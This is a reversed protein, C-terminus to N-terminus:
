PMDKTVHSKVSTKLKGLLDYLRAKDERTVGSLLDDIWRAHTTSMAGFVRRGDQTLTVRHSRRDTPSPTRRILGEEALREVLSTINGNSVMLRASLEGMTMGEPARELQALMDFRPLTTAFYERLMAHMRREIMTSCTLLRLWLRLEMRDDRGAGSERDATAAPASTGDSM